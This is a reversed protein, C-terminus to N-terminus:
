KGGLARYEMLIESAGPAQNTKQLLSHYERLVRVREAQQGPRTTEDLAKKFFAEALQPQNNAMHFDRLRALAVGYEPSSGGHVEKTRTMMASLADTAKQKVAERQDVPVASMELWHKVFRQTHYNASMKDTFGELRADLENSARSLSEPGAKNAILYRFRGLQAQMAAAQSQNLLDGTQATPRTKAFAEIQRGAEDHFNTAVQHWRDKKTLGSKTTGTMSYVDGISMLSEARGITGSPHYRHSVVNAVSLLGVSKELHGLLTDLSADKTELERASIRAQGTLANLIAPFSGSQQVTQILKESMKQVEPHFHSPQHKSEKVCAALQDVAAKDLGFASLAQSYLKEAEAVNGSKFRQTAVLTSGEAFVHLMRTLEVTQARTRADTSDSNQNICSRALAILEDPSKKALEEPKQGSAAALSNALRKEIQELDKVESVAAPLKELLKFADNRLARMYVEDQFNADASELSDLAFIYLKGAATNRIESDSSQAMAMMAAVRLRPNYKELTLAEIQKLRADNATLPMGKVSLLLIQVAQHVSEDREDKPSNNETASNNELGNLSSIRALSATREAMGESRIALGGFESLVSQWERDYSEQAAMRADAATAVSSLKARSNLAVRVDTYEKSFREFTEKGFKDLLAIMAPLAKVKDTTAEQTTIVLSAIKSVIERRVEASTQPHALLRELGQVLIVRTEDSTSAKSELGAFLQDKVLGLDVTGKSSSILEVLKRAIIPQAKEWPDRNFIELGEKHGEDSRMHALRVKQQEETLPMLEFKNNEDQRRHRTFADGMQSKTSSLYGLVLVAADRESVMQDGMQITPKDNGVMAKEVLQDIQALYAKYARNQAILETELVLADGSSRLHDAGVNFNSAHAARQADSWKRALTSKGAVTDVFEKSADMYKFLDTQKLLKALNSEKSEIWAAVEDPKIEKKNQRTVADNVAQESKQSGADKISGAPEYYKALVTRVAADPEAAALKSLIDKRDKDVPVLKMLAEVAALRVEPSPEKAPTLRASVADITDKDTFGLRAMGSLAAARIEQIPESERKSSARLLANLNSRVVANNSEVTVGVVLPILAEKVKAAELKAAPTQAKNVDITALLDASGFLFQKKWLGPQASELKDILRTGNFSEAFIRVARFAVAPENSNRICEQLARAAQLDVQGTRVAMQSLAEAAALKRAWGVKDTQVTTLDAQFMSKLQEETVGPPNKLFAAEMRQKDINDLNERSMLSHAFLLSSRIGKDTSRAAIEEVRRLLDASTLGVTLGRRASKDPNNDLADSIAENVRVKSIISALDVIAELQKNKNQGPAGDIRKLLLDAVHESSTLGADHLALAKELRRNDDTESQLDQQLLEVLEKATIEQFVSKGTISQRHVNGEGDVHVLDYNPVSERRSVLTDSWSGDAKRTLTLLALAAMRRVNPDLTLHDVESLKKLDDPSLETDRGNQVQSIKDGSYRLLGTLELAYRQRDEPKGNPATLEAVRASIQDIKQSAEPKIEQFGGGYQVKLRERDEPKFHTGSIRSLQDVMQDFNFKATPSALTDKYRKFNAEIHDSPIATSTALKELASRDNMNLERFAKFASNVKDPREKMMQGLRIMDWSFMTLFAKDSVAFAYQAAKEVGEAGPIKSLAGANALALARATQESGRITELTSRIGSAMGPSVAEAIKGVSKDMRLLQGVSYGAHSLFYVSRLDSVTKMWPVEDAGANHFIGTVGLGLEALSSTVARAMLHKPIQSAAETKMVQSGLVVAEETGLRAVKMAAGLHVTGSVVMAADMTFMIGKNGYHLLAQKEQWAALDKAKILQVQPVLQKNATDVGQGSQVAVWDEPDYYVPDKSKIQHKTDAFSNLYGYWPVDEFGVSTSVKVKRGKDTNVTEVNMNYSVLNFKTWGPGPSKEQGVMFDQKDPSIWGGKVEAEGYGAIHTQDKLLELMAHRASGEFKDCYGSILDLKKRNADSQLSLDSIMLDNFSVKIKGDKDRKIELGRPLENHDLANTKFGSESKQMHDMMEIMSAAREYIAMAKDVAVSWTQIDMDKSPRRWSEPYRRASIGEEVKKSLYEGLKEFRAKELKNSALELWDNVKRLKDLDELKNANIDLFAKGQAIEQRLQEEAKVIDSKAGAIQLPLGPVMALQEKNLALVTGPVTVKEHLELLKKFGEKTADGFEPLSTFKDAGVKIGMEAKLRQRFVEREENSKFKLKDALLLIQGQLEQTREVTTRQEAPLKSVEIIKDTGHDSGRAETIVKESFEKYSVRPPKPFGNESAVLDATQQLAQLVLLTKEPAPEKGNLELGTIKGDPGISCKISGRSNNQEISLPVGNKFIVTQKLDAAEATVTATNEKENIESIVTATPKESGAKAPEFFRRTEKIVGDENSRSVVVLLEPSKRDRAAQGNPYIAFHADGNDAINVSIVADATGLLNDIPKGSADFFKAPEGKEIGSKDPDDKLFRDIQRFLEVPSSVSEENKEATKEAADITSMVREQYIPM